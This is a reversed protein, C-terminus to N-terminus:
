ARLRAASLGVQSDASTGGPIGSPVVRSSNSQGPSNRDRPDLMRRQERDPLTFDTYELVVQRLLEPSELWPVHGTDPLTVRDALPLAEHLSNVADRPRPDCAGDVILTPVGLAQCRTRLDAEDWADAEANLAANCEYNIPYWPSALQEALDAARARDAFDSTWQLVALRRDEEETRQRQGLQAIARLDADSTRAKVNRRWRDKWDAGIGTGSMYILARVQGPHRLAYQLALGAGWSHGLLVVPGDSVATVVASLDEVFRGTTYPGVRQSRGSGRQNWRVVRFRDELMTALPELYDALGPGGHCLVLCEGGGRRDTWLRCGDNAEVVSDSM